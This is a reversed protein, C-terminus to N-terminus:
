WKKYKALLIIGRRELLENSNVIQDAACITFPLGQLIGIGAALPAVVNRQPMISNQGQPILTQKSVDDPSVGQPALLSRDNMGRRLRRPM